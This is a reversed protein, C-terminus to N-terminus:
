DIELMFSEIALKPSANTMVLTVGLNHIKKLISVIKELDYAITKTKTFVFQPKRDQNQIINERDKGRLTELMLNRFHFQWIEIMEVLDTNEDEVIKKVYNFKEPLESKIVKAFEKERDQWLKMSGKDAVFEILRGPRGFSLKIAEKVQLDDLKGGSAACYQRAYKEIEKEGVFSFRLIECRSRITELLQRSNRAILIILSDGPPEELTKLLCNQAESNMAQAEDILAAKIGGRASKLSLKRIMERVQGVSIEEAPKGTKPDIAPTLFVFDPHASEPSINESFIQSLWELAVTKKGIKAPGSLIYAHGMRGSQRANSLFELQKQHGIIGM